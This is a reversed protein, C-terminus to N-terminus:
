RRRPRPPGARPPAPTTTPPGPSRLRCPRRCPPSGRSLPPSCAAVAGSPALRICRKLYRSPVTKARAAAISPPRSHALSFLSRDLGAAVVRFVDEVPHGSRVGQLDVVLLLAPALSLEQATAQGHGTAVHQRHAAAPVRAPM